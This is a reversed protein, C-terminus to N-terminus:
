TQKNLIQLGFDSLHYTSKIGLHEREILGLEVMRGVLGVRMSIAQVSPYGFVKRLNADLQSPKGMGSQVVRLLSIIGRAEGPVNAFIHDVLFEREKSSFAGGNFDRSDIVPNPMCAFLVGPETLGVRPTRHDGEFNVLHLQAPAGLQKGSKIAMGGVFQSVFRKKSKEKNLSPLAYSLSKANAIASTKVAMELSRKITCAAECAHLALEESAVYMEGSRLLNGLVRCTVKIPLLRNALCWIPHDVRHESTSSLRLPRLKASDLQALYSWATNGNMSTSQPEQTNSQTKIKSDVPQTELFLQNQIATRIFDHFTTYRSYNLLERITENEFPSIDIIYRM